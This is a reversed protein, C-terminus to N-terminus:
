PGRDAHLGPEPFESGGELNAPPASTYVTCSDNIEAACLTANDSGGLARVEWALLAKGRCDEIVLRAPRETTMARYIASWSLVVLGKSHHEFTVGNANVLVVCYRRSPSCVKWGAVVASAVVVLLLIFDPVGFPSVKWLRGLVIAILAALTLQGLPKWYLPFRLVKCHPDYRLGCEPCVGSAAHGRLDYACRRCTTQTLCMRVRVAGIRRGVM